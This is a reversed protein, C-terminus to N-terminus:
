IEAVLERKSLIEITGDAASARIVRGVTGGLHEGRIPIKLAALHERVAEINRAGIDTTSAKGFMKAGGAIKAELRGPNAGRQFMEARMAAIATDAFKGPSSDEGQSDPLVVHALGSLGTVPDRFVVGVCSGLLTMLRGPPDTYGIGALPVNFIEGEIKSEAIAM